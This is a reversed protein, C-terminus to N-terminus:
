NKSAEMKKDRDQLKGLQSQSVHITLKFILSDQVPYFIFDMVEHGFITLPLAGFVM